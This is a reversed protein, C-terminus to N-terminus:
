KIGCWLRWSRGVETRFGKELSRHCTEWADGLEVVNRTFPSPRVGPLGALPNPQGGITVPQLSNVNIM